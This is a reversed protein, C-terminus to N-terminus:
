GLNDLRAVGAQACRAEHGGRGVLNQREDAAAVACPVIVAQLCGEVPQLGGGDGRRQPLGVFPACVAEGPDVFPSLAGVYVSAGVTDIEDHRVPEVLRDKIIREHESDVAFVELQRATELAPKIADRALVGASLTCTPPEIEPMEVVLRRAKRRELAKCELQAVNRAALRKRAIPEFDLTITAPM